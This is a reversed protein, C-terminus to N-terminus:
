QVLSFECTEDTNPGLTEDRSELTVYLGGLVGLNPGSTGNSYFPVPTEFIFKTYREFAAQLITSNTGNPGDIAFKFSSPNITFYGPDFEYKSPLPWLLDTTTSTDTICSSPLICASLTTQQWSTHRQTVRM